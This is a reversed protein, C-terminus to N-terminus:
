GGSFCGTSSSVAGAPSFPSIERKVETSRCSPCDTAHTTIDKQLKEFRDGCKMCSYEYIPM